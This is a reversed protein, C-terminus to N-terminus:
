KQGCILIYLVVDATCIRDQFEVSQWMPFELLKVCIENTSM